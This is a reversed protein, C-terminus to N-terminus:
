FGFEVSDGIGCRMPTHTQVGSVARGRLSQSELLPQIRVRKVRKLVLGHQLDPIDCPIQRALCRDHRDNAGFGFGRPSGKTNRRRDTGHRQGQCAKATPLQTPQWVGVLPEFGGAIDTLDDQAIATLHFQVQARLQGVAVVLISTLDRQTFAFGEEADAVVSV